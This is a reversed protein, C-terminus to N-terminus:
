NSGSSKDENGYDYPIAVGGPGLSEGSSM